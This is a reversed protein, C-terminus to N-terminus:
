HYLINGSPATPILLRSPLFSCGSMQEAVKSFERVNDLVTLSVSDCLYRLSLDPKMCCPMPVTLVNSATSHWVAGIQFGDLHGHTSLLLFWQTTIYQFIIAAICFYDTGALLSLLYSLKVGLGLLGFKVGLFWTIFPSFWSWLYCPGRVEMDISHCRCSFGWM